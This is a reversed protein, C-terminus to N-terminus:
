HSSFFRQRTTPGDNGFLSSTIKETILRNAIIRWGSSYPLFSSASGGLGFPRDLWVDIRDVGVGCRTPFVGRRM